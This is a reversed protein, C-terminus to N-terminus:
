AVFRQLLLLSRFIYEFLGGTKRFVKRYRSYIKEGIIFCQQSITLLTMNATAMFYIAVSM